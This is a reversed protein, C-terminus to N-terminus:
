AKLYGNPTNAKFREELETPATSKYDITTRLVIEDTKADSVALCFPV